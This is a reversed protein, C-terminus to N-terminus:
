VCECVGWVGYWGCIDLGSVWGCEWVSDCVGMCVGLLGVCVNLVGVCVVECVVMWM